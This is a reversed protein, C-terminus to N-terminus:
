WLDDDPDEPYSIPELESLDGFDEDLGLDDDDDENDDLM